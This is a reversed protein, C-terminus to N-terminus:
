YLNQPLSFRAIRGCPPETVTDVEFRRLSEGERGSSRADGAGGVAAAGALLDPGQDPVGSTRDAQAGSAGQDARDASVRLGLFQFISM